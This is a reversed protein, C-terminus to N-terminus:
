STVNLSALLMEPHQSWKSIKRFILAIHTLRETTGSEKRGWPSCGVLSRQGDSKELCPYQLPDGNGEGPSRRLGLILGLDGVSCASEKGLTKSNWCKSKLLLVHLIFHRQNAQLFCESSLNLSVLLMELHQSWKNIKRFILATYSLIIFYLCTTTHM